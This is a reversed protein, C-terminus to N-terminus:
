IHILSLHLGDIVHQADAEALRRHLEIELDLGRVAEHAVEADSRLREEFLVDIHIKGLVDAEDIRRRGILGIALGVGDREKTVDCLASGDLVEVLHTYSVTTMSVPSLARVASAMPRCAPTLSTM